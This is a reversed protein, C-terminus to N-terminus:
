PPSVPEVGTRSALIAIMMTAAARRSSYCERMRAPESISADNRVRLTPATVVRPPCTREDARLAERSKGKSGGCPLRVKRGLDLGDKLRATLGAMKLAALDVVLHGEVLGLRDGSEALFQKGPDFVFFFLAQDAFKEGL